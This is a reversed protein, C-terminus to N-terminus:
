KVLLYKEGGVKESIIVLPAIITFPMTVANSVSINLNKTDLKLNVIEVIVVNLNELLIANFMM